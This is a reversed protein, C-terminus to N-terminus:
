GFDPFGQGLNVAGLDRAAGSMAEFVTTPMDAFLPNMPGTQGLRSPAEVPLFFARPSGRAKPLSSSSSIGGDGSLDTRASGLPIAATARRAHLGATARARSAPRPAKSLTAVM